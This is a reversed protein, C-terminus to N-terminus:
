VDLWHHPVRRFPHHDIKVWSSYHGFIHGAVSVLTRVYSALSPLKTHVMDRDIIAGVSYILASDHLAAEGSDM